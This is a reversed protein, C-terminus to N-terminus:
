AAMDYISRKTQSFYSHALQLYAGMRTRMIAAALEQSIIPNEAIQWLLLEADARTGMLSYPHLLMRRNFGQITDLLERKHDAQKGDPLRRWLPDVRYFAFRVYQRSTLNRSRQKNDPQGPSTRSPRGSSTM